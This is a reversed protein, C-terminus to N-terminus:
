NVGTLGAAGGGPPPALHRGSDEGIAVIPGRVGARQAFRRGEGPFRSQVVGAADGGTRKFAPRVLLDRDALRSTNIAELVGSVPATTTVIAGIADSVEGLGANIAIPERITALLYRAPALIVLAIPLSHMAVSTAM